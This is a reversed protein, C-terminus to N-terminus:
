RAIAMVQGNLAIYKTNGRQLAPEKRLKQLSKYVKLHSKEDRDEKRVNIEQYNDAIPLWTKEAISFGANKEDNWQFPTRAPDRSFQEYITPNSNCAAPDVTDNWSLWKDIM